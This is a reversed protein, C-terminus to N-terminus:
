NSIKRDIRSHLIRAFISNLVAVDGTVPVYNLVRRVIKLCVYM